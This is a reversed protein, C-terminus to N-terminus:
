QCLETYAQRITKVTKTTPNNFDILGNSDTKYTYEIIFDSDATSNYAQAVVDVSLKCTVETQSYQGLYDNDILKNYKRGTVVLEGNDTVKFQKNIPSGNEYMSVDTSGVPVLKNIDRGQGSPNSAFNYAKGETNILTVSYGSNGETQKITNVVLTKGVVYVTDIGFIDDEYKNNNIYINSSKIVSKSDSESELKITFDDSVKFSLTKCESYKTEDNKDFLIFEYKNSGQKYTGICDKSVETVKPKNDDDDDDWDYDIVPPYDKPDDWSEVLRVFLAFSTISLFLGVVFGILAGIGAAKSSKKKNNMWILFLILGVLPFFFGLVGWGISGNDEEKVEEKVVKKTTKKEEKADCKPCKGNKIASGCEGCFKGM